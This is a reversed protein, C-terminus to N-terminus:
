LDVDERGEGCLMRVAECSESTPTQIDGLSRKHVGRVRTRISSFAEEGRNQRWQGHKGVLLMMRLVGKSTYIYTYMIQSLDCIITVKYVPGFGGMGLMNRTSFNSTATVLMDFSYLPLEEIRVKDMDSRLM